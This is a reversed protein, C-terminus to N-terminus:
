RRSSEREDSQAPESIGNLMPRSSGSDIVLVTLEPGAAHAHWSNFSAHNILNSTNNVQFIAVWALGINDFSIAGQFPNHDSAACNTYYRNWDVCSVNTPSNDGYLSTVATMNCQMSNYVFPPLKDCKTMGEYDTRSCILDHIEHENGNGNHGEVYYDPLDFRFLRVSLQSVTFPM